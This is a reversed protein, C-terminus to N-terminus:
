KRAIDMDMTEWSSCTHITRSRVSRFGTELMTDAIVGRELPKMSSTLFGAITGLVYSAPNTGDQSIGEAFSIFVGGPNLAEYVKQAVDKLKEGAFNLTSSAWIFDYGSGISDCNFDGSLLSIREEMGAKKIHDAAIRTVPERDFVVGKMEPHNEVMAICFIGPGGGLDLMKKFGPFEPLEAVLAAAQRAAGSKATNALVESLKSWRKESGINSNGTREPPGQRVLGPLDHLMAEMMKDQFEFAEGLYVPADRCLFADAVPLNRYLGEKKEILGCAVLGNLFLMTNRPHGGIQQMVQDSTKPETLCDFINLQIGAMLLRHAMVARRMKFLQSPTEDIDPIYM